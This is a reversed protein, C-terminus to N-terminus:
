LFFDKTQNVWTQLESDSWERAEYFAVDTQGDLDWGLNDNRRGFNVNSSFDATTSGNISSTNELSVNTDGVDAHYLSATNSGDMTFAIFTWNNQTLVGGGSKILVSRSGDGDLVVVGFEAGSRIRMGFGVDNLDGTNGWVQYNNSTDHPRFWIACTGLNQDTLSKFATRSNSGLDVFDSSGDYVMHTGGVGKGAAFTANTISGDLGGIKDGVTSGSGESFDWQHDAGSNLAASFVVDGDVTIEQVDTGDITAGTIDTGDISTPPIM